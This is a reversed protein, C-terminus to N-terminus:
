FHLYARHPAAPDLFAVQFEASFLDYLAQRIAPFYRQSIVTRKFASPTYLTLTKEDLDVARCDDFWTKMTVPTLSAALVDTISKWVDSVSNM